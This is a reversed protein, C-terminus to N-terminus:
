LIVCGTKQSVTKNISGREEDLRYNNNNYSILPQSDITPNKWFRSSSASSIFPQEAKIAPKKNEDSKKIVAQLKESVPFDDALWESMKEYKEIWPKLADMVRQIEDSTIDACPKALAKSAPEFAATQNFYVSFFEVLEKLSAIIIEKDNMNSLSTYKGICKQLLKGPLSFLWCTAVTPISPSSNFAHIFSELLILGGPYSLAFVATLVLKIHTWNCAEYLSLYTDCWAEPTEDDCGCQAHAPPTVCMQHKKYSTEHTVPDNYKFMCDPYLKKLYDYEDHNKDGMEKAYMVVFVYGTLYAAFTIINVYHIKRNNSLDGDHDLRPVDPTLAETLRRMRNLLTNRHVANLNVLTVGTENLYDKVAKILLARHEQKEALNSHIDGGHLKLSMLAFKKERGNPSDLHTRVLESFCAQWYHTNHVFMTNDSTQTARFLDPDLLPSIAKKEAPYLQDHEQQIAQDTVVNSFLFIGYKYLLQRMQVKQDDHMVLDHLTRYQNNAKDIIYLDQFANNKLPVPLTSYQISFANLLYDVMWVNNHEVALQLPTKTASGQFMLSPEAHLVETLIPKLADVFVIDHAYQAAMHVLTRTYANSNAQALFVNALNAHIPCAAFVQVIRKIFDINQQQILYAVFPMRAQPYEANGTQVVIETWILSAEPPIDSSKELEFLNSLMELPPKVLPPTGTQLRTLYSMSFLQNSARSLFLEETSRM